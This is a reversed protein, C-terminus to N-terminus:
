NYNQSEKVINKVARNVITNHEESLKIKKILKLQRAYNRTIRLFEQVDHFEDKDKIDM